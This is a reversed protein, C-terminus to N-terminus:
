EKPLFGVRRWNQPMNGATKADRLIRGHWFAGDASLDRNAAGTERIGLGDGPHDRGEGLGLAARHGTEIGSGAL